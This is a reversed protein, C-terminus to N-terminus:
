VLMRQTGQRPPKVKKTPAPFPTRVGNSFLIPRYEDPVAEHMLPSSRYRAIHSELGQHPHSWGASCVKNSPLVWQSFGEFQHRFEEAATHSVLNVFAYGLAAHSRFDIPMYLFDYRGAFGESNFLDLLMNRTYNNPLNRLMVTTRKQVGGAHADPQGKSTGPKLASSAAARYAQPAASPAPPKGVGDSQVSTDKLPKPAATHGGGGGDSLRGLLVLSDRGGEHCGSEEDDSESGPDPQAQEEDEEEHSTDRLRSAPATTARSLGPQAEEDGAESDTRQVAIHVFTNRVSVEVEEYGFQADRLM